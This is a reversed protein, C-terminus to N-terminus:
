RPIRPLEIAATFRWCTNAGSTGRPVVLGRVYRIEPLALLASAPIELAAHGEANAIWIEPVEISGTPDLEDQSGPYIGGPIAALAKGATLRVLDGPRSRFRLLWAPAAHASVERAELELRPAELEIAGRARAVGSACSVLLDHTGAANAMTRGEFVGPALERLEHLPAGGISLHPPEAQAPWDRLHVRVREDGLANARAPEVREISWSGAHHPWAGGACFGRLVEAVGRALVRAGRPSPHVMDCLHADFPAPEAAFLARADVCVLGRRAAASRVAERDRELGPLDRQTREKHTGLVLVVRPTARTALELIAELEERLNEEPVRRGLPPRGQSWGRLIEERTFPEARVPRAAWSRLWAFTASRQWARALTSATRRARLEIDNAGLAPAHDNWAALYLVLAFPAGRALVEHELLHRIQVTSYAPVGFGAVQVQTPDLGIREEIALQLQAPLTEAVNVGVGYVNSDGVVAIRPLSAPKPEPPAGRFPWAGNAYIGLHEECARYHSGLSYFREAHPVFIGGGFGFGGVAGEFEVEPPTHARGSARLALELGGAVAIMTCAAL